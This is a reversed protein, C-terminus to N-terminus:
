KSLPKISVNGFAADVHHALFAVGGKRLAHKSVQNVQWNWEGPEENGDQWIKFSYRSVGCGDPKDALTECRAKMWYKEGMAVPYVAFDTSNNNDGRYFETYPADVPRDKKWRLWCISGFPQYGWKPQAPPFDRHGGVIHGTFRLLIGVGNGGSLKTTTGSVNHITVPVTVEYDQWSKEGILFIRDYGAHMTRLAHQELQWHGDVYQGVDQPESVKSWDIFVPLRYSGDERDIILKKSTRNGLRDEAIIEITNAGKRLSSIPVDANFHGLGALRRFGQESQGFNLQIQPGNNLRYTLSIVSDAPFVKGLVNFDDQAIGLHGVKQASGHWLEIQLKDAGSIQRASCGGLLVVVAFILLTVLITRKISM